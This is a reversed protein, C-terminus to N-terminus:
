ALLIVRGSHCIQLYVNSIYFYNLTENVNTFNAAFIGAFTVPSNSAKAEKHLIVFLLITKV